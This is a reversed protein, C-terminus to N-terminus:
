NKLLFDTLLRVGSGTAGYGFYMREGNEVFATGAIDLHAWAIKEGVFRRLFEAATISGAAGKPYGMNRIDAIKSKISDKLEPYLPMRWVRDDTAQASQILQGALTEDNSFLATHDHGLAVVCAGTLTALDIIRAPRHNKSIYAITDALVLRGEADTNGIEVTIGAYSKYVDGPKYSGSGIANEAIGCAFIINKKVGLAIANKLTGIVAAAGSMDERMSEIYGTPKLNLGGTDFTIGKGVLATYPETKGAGTYKVIILKPEKRSGKNVALILNLGKAALEKENLVELTTRKCGKIVERVAKELGASDSTDANDNILDRALNVGECVKLTDAYEKQEPAVVFIQKSAGNNEKDSTMYKVWRYTGIVVGEIVATMDADPAHPLLEVQRLKSLFASQMVRRVSIRLATATLQKADGVGGLLVLKGKYTLPFMEGDDGTFQGAKILDTLAKKLGEDKVPLDTTKKDKQKSLFIVVADKDFKVAPRFYLM